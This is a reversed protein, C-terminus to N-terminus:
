KLSILFLFRVFGKICLISIYLLLMYIFSNMMMGEDIGGGGVVNQWLLFSSSLFFHGLSLILVFCSLVLVTM